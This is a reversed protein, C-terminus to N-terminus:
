METVSTAVATLKKASSTTSTSEEAEVSASEGTIEFTNTILDEAGKVEYTVEYTRGEALALPDGAFTVDIRYDVNCGASGFCKKRLIKVSLKFDKAVPATVKPQEVAPQEAAPAATKVDAAVSGAPPTKTGSDASVGIAVVSGLCLALGALVGGLIWPLKSKKPPQPMVQGLSYPAGPVNPPQPTTTM